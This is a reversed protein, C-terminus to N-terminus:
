LSPSIKWVCGDDPWPRAYALIIREVDSSLNPMKQEGVLENIGSFFLQGLRDNTEICRQIEDERNHMSWSLQEPDQLLM